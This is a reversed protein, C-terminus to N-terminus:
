QRPPQSALEQEEISPLIKPWNGRYVLNRVRCQHRDSYRFLGLFRETPIESVQHVAVEMGNVFVTLQDGTLTLRIQNWDNPRLEIKAADGPIPSANDPALDRTEYQAETLSHLRAGDPQILIATRGVAPHVEQEGPVWFAEFQIEGDELMPRQYMLLSELPQASVNTNIQGVIEDGSKKWQVSDDGADAAHREGYVDSRWGTMDILDIQDPIEPTGTIRLNRIVAEEGAGAAQLVIWPSPTGQLVEEHITVGNAATTVKSGNVTIRIEAAENWGPIELKKEQDAVSDLTRVMRIAKLDARPIASFMGWSVFINGIKTANPPVSYEARIDFNGRLPSQFFQNTRRAGPLHHAQGRSFNWASARQGFARNQPLLYQVGAWQKPLLPESSSESLEPILPALVGNVIGAFRDNHSNFKEDQEMRYAASAIERAFPRTAPRMAAECAVLVEAARQQPTVLPSLGKELTAVVEKVKVRILDMDTGQLLLLTELALRNRRALEGVAPVANVETLLVETRNLEKALRVLELAPSQLDLPSAPRADSGPEIPTCRYALRMSDHSGSPLVWDKLVQFADERSLTRVHALFEPVQVEFVHEPILEGLMKQDGASMPTQHLLMNQKLENSLTEPWDGSLVVNRIRSEQQQYRFMGVQTDSHVPLPREFITTGNLTILATQDQLSIEVANWDAAKLPLEAPGRRYEPEAIANDLPIGSIADDWAPEALWHTMVGAPELLMTLRGISPHAVITGPEYFFEYRLTEGSRLPRCYRIRSQRDAAADPDPRGNLVGDKVSWDFVAPQRRQEYTIRDNEGKPKQAMIRPSPRRDGFGSCSWGEMSTQGLLRVEKPIVPSGSLRPNRFTSVRANTSALTIWPCTGTLTEEYALHGNLLYRLKGDVSQVQVKNFSPVKRKLGTPRSVADEGTTSIVVGSNGFAQSQVIVGGYGADCEGWNRQLCEVSFEFNGEVPWAFYLVDIGDGAFHYLMNDHAAWWAPISPSFKTSPSIPLWDALGTVNGPKLQGNTGASLVEAFDVDMRSILDTTRLSELMMRLTTRGSRAFFEAFAPSQLCRQYIVYDGTPSRSQRNNESKNRDQMSDLLEQVVPIGDASNETEILYLAYLFEANPLKDERAKLVATHLEDLAGCAAAASLMETLNCLLNSQRPIGPRPDLQLFSEPADIPRMFQAVMRVTQRDEKPMTWDRWTEFQQRPELTSVYGVVAALPLTMDPPSYQKADFDTARGLYDMAITPIRNRAAESAFGALDRWQLYLGYDGGYRSYQVQKAAQQADFYKRVEDLDGRKVLYRNVQEDLKGTTTGSDNYNYNNPDPTTWPMQVASKLIAYADEELEKRDAAPLAAHCALQFTAPNPAKQMSEALAQLHEAAAKEDDIALDIQTLLVLAPITASQNEKRADIQTKLDAIQDAKKAWAVLTAGLSKTQADRLKTNDPFLMVDAPRSAPFVLPKLLSYVDLASYDDGHWKAIVSQLSTVVEADLKVASDDPVGRSSRVVRGNNAVPTAVPDPVPTGGLMADRVAIRSLNAMGNKAATEAVIMTLRFQSITLPPVADM